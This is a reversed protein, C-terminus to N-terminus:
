SCATASRPSRPKWRAPSQVDLRSPGLRRGPRRDRPGQRARNAAPRPVLHRREVPRQLRPRGPEADGARLRPRVRPGAELLTLMPRKAPPNGLPPFYGFVEDMYLIARLSSTGPQTRIWALIENLLITVFFMRQADDLHAISMIALRPKGTRRTSCGSCHRAARRGALSAFSPSALLNNLSM